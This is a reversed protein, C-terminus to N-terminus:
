KKEGWIKIEILCIRPNEHNNKLGSFGLIRLDQDIKDVTILNTQSVM